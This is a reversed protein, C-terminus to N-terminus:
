HKFGIPEIKRFNILHGNNKEESIRIGFNQYNEELFPQILKWDKSSFHEFKGGHLQSEEVKQYPDNIFIAGGSALSFLNGGPYPDELNQSKGKIDFELGGLVVFGGGNHPDGAMFSEALYDGAGTIAWAVKIVM